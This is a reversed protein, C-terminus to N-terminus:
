LCKVVEIYMNLRFVEFIITIPTKLPMADSKLTVKSKTNVKLYDSVSSLNQRMVWGMKLLHM